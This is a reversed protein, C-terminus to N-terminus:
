RQRPRREQNQQRQALRQAREAELKQVETKQESTLVSLIEERMRAQIVEMEARNRERITGIADQQAQTLNLSALPL